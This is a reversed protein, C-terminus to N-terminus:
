LATVRRRRNEVGLDGGREIEEAIRRDILGQARLGRLLVANETELRRRISESALELPVVAAELREVVQFIHFGYDAELIESVEGAQLGFVRDRFEEPLDDRTFEGQDVVASAM